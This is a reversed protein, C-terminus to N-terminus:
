NIRRSVKNRTERMVEEVNARNKNVLEDIHLMTKDEIEHFFDLDTIELTEEQLPDHKYFSFHKKEEDARLISLEKPSCKSRTSHNHRVKNPTSSALFSSTKPPNQSQKRPAPNKSSVSTPKLKVGYAQRVANSSERYEELPSIIEDRRVFTVKTDRNNLIKPVARSRSCAIPRANSNTRLDYCIIPPRPPPQPMNYIHDLIIHINIHIHIHILIYFIYIYIYM